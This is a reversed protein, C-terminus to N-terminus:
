ATINTFLLMLVILARSVHIHFFTNHVLRLGANIKSCEMCHSDMTSEKSIVTTMIRAARAKCESLYRTWGGVSSSSRVGGVQTWGGGRCVRMRMLLGGRHRYAIGGNYRKLGMVGCM